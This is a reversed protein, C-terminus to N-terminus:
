YDKEKEMPPINIAYIANTNLFFFSKNFEINFYIQICVIIQEHSEKLSVTLNTIEIYTPFQKVVM